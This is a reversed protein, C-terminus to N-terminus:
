KDNDKNDKNDAAGAIAMVACAGAFILLGANWLAGVICAAGLVGFVRAFFKAQWEESFVVESARELRDAIRSAKM